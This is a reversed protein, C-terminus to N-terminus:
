KGRGDWERGPGVSLAADHLKDWGACIDSNLRRRVTEEVCSKKMQELHQAPDVGQPVAADLVYSRLEWGSAWPYVEDSLVLATIIACCWFLHLLFSRWVTM